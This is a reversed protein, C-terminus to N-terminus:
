LPMVIIVRESFECDNNTPTGGSDNCGLYKATFTNLGENLGDSQTLIFQRTASGGVMTADSGAGAVSSGLFAGKSFASSGTPPNITSAGTVQFHMAAYGEDTASAFASLFVICRRSPGIYVDTITPGVTSNLNAYTAGVTFSNAPEYATRITLAQSLVSIRGMVLYQTRVRLVGVVDGVGILVSGAALVPVNNIPSDGILVTNSGTSQDWALVIGQHFGLEPQEPAGGVSRSLLTALVDPANLAPPPAPDTM